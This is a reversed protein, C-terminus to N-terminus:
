GGRVTGRSSILLGSRRLRWDATYFQPQKQSAAASDGFYEVETELVDLKQKLRKVGQGSADQSVSPFLVGPSNLEALALEACAEKIEQPIGNVTYDDKDIADWRPWEMPQTRVRRSGIYNYRSDLYDSAKVIAGQIDPDADFDGDAVSAVNRDTHYATFFAVDIYANADAISGSDNQVTFAM